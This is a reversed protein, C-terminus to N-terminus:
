GPPLFHFRNVTHVTSFMGRISVPFFVARVLAPIDQLSTVSPFGFSLLGVIGKPPDFRAVFRSVQQIFFTSFNPVIIMFITAVSM